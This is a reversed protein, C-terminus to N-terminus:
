GDLAARAREANRAVVANDPDLAAAREFRALAARPDGLLLLLNGLNNHLEVTDVGAALAEEYRARAQAYRGLRKLALGRQVLLEPDDDSFRAARELLVLALEREGPARLPEAARRLAFSLLPGVAADAGPRSPRRFLALAAQRLAPLPRALGGVPDVGARRSELVIVLRWAELTGEDRRPALGLEPRQLDLAQVLRHRAGPFLPAIALARRAADVAADRHAAARAPDDARRALSREVSALNAWSVQLGGVDPRVPVRGALALAALVAAGALLRRVRAAGSATEIWRVTRDLLAAALIWLAPAASLRYRAMVYFLALTVAVFLVGGRVAVVPPRRSWGLLLLGALAWPGLWRLDSLPTALWPVARKVFAWDKVDPVEDGSFTAALKLGVRALAVGPADTAHDWAVGWWYRSVEPGSPRRGLAQEALAVADTEEYFVDGRGVRLPEYVVGAMPDDSAPQGIAANTGSQYTSLVLEGRALNHLTAPLLGVLTAATVVAATAVRRRALLSLGVLLALLYVNGRLLIGGGLLLGILVARGRAAPRELVDVWLHLLVVLVLLSLSAKLLMTEHFVLPGSLAALLGALLGARRGFARAGLTAVLLATLVGLAHQAGFVLRHVPAHGVIAEDEGIPPPPSLRYLQGLLWAYAPEQYFSREREDTGAAIRRAWRDYGVEDGQLHALTTGVPGDDGAVTAAFGIRVSVAVAAVLLLAWPGLSGSWRTTV